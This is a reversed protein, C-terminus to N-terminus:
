YNCVTEMQERDSTRDDRNKAFIWYRKYKDDLRTRSYYHWSVSLKREVYQLIADSDGGFQQHAHLLAVYINTLTPSEIDPPFPFALSGRRFEAMIQNVYYKITPDNYDFPFHHERKIRKGGHKADVLYPKIDDENIFITSKTGGGKTNVRHREHYLKQNFGDICKGTNIWSYILQDSIGYKKGIEKMTM